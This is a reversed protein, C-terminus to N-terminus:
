IKHLMHSEVYEVVFMTQKRMQQHLKVIANCVSLLNVLKLANHWVHQVLISDCIKLPSGTMFEIFHPINRNLYRLLCHLGSQIGRYAKEEVAWDCSLMIEPAIIRPQHIYSMLKDTLQIWSYEVRVKISQNSEKHGLFCKKTIDPRTTRPQVLVLCPNIHRACPCLVTVGTISSSAVAQIPRPDFVRINLWQAGM